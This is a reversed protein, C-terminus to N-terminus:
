FLREGFIEKTAEASLAFKNEGIKVILYKQYKFFIELIAGELIGSKEYIKRKEPTTDIKKIEIKDNKDFCYIKEM